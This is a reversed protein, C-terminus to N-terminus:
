EHSVTRTFLEWTLVDLEPLATVGLQRFMFLLQARHHMSHATVHVIVSGLSKAQPPDDLTDLFMEDLRGEGDIRRAVDHFEAIATDYRESMSEISQHEETAPRDRASRGSMLDTWCEINWVMHDLTRRVTSHGIDFSVEAEGDKLGIAIDLLQHTAWADHELLRDLLSM